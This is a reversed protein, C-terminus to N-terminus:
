KKKPEIMSRDNVYLEPGQDRYRTVMEQLAAASPRKCYLSHTWALYWVGNKSNDKRPLVVMHFSDRRVAKLLAERDAKPLGKYAIVIHGHELNHVWSETRQESDYIGWDLPTASHNGSAPPNTEYTVKEEVHKRGYNKLDEIRGCGAKRAAAADFPKDSISNQGSSKKTTARGGEYVKGFQGCGAAIAAAVLLAASTALIRRM